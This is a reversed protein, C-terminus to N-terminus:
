RLQDVGTITGGQPGPQGVQRVTLGGGLAGVGPAVSQIGGGITQRLPGSPASAMRREFLRSIARNPSNIYRMGAQAMKITGARALAAPNLTLIGRLAEESAPIDWFVDTLGRKNADRHVASAIDKEIDRLAGYRLKLNQYGPGQFREVAQDLGERLLRVVPAMVAAHNVTEQTPNKYFPTLSRNIAQIADQAEETTYARRAALNQALQNADAAVRPYFDRVAPTGSIKQLEQIAPSLDVMAGQTGAATAMQNYSRFLTSKTQEIAESFQRLTRPLQGQIQNGYADTLALHPKEAIISDVASLIRRDQAGLQSINTRGGIGPKVAQRFSKNLAADIAQPTDGAIAKGLSSGVAEGLAGGALGGAAGLGAQKLKEAAFNGGAVPQAAAAFAGTAAGMGLRGPLTATGGPVLALPATAAMEGGLRGVGSAIPHARVAPSQGYVQERQKVLQDMDPPQQGQPGGGMGLANVARQIPQKLPAAAHQAMQAVGYPVDGAGHLFGKWMAGLMSGGADAQDGGGRMKQWAAETPDKGYGGTTPPATPDAGYPM